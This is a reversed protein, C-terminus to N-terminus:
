SSPPPAQGPVSTEDGLRVHCHPCIRWYNMMYGGCNQCQIRPTLCLLVVCTIWGLIPHIGFWMWRPSYNKRKAAWVGLLIPLVWGLVVVAAFLLVIGLGALVPCHRPEGGILAFLQVTQM